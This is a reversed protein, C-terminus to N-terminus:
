NKFDVSVTAIIKEAEKKVKDMGMGGIIFHGPRLRGYKPKQLIDGQKINLQYDILLPHNKLFDLGYVAKVIVEGFDFFRMVVYKDKSFAKNKVAMEDVKEGLSEKILYEYNDIESM